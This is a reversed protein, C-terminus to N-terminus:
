WAPEKWLTTNIGSCCYSQAALNVEVLEKGQDKSKGQVPQKPEAHSEDM